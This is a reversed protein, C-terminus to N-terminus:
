AVDGGSCNQFFLAKRKDRFSGSPVPKAVLIKDLIKIWVVREKVSNPTRNAKFTTRNYSFSYINM